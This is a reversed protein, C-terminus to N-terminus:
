KVVEMMLTLSAEYNKSGTITAHLKMACENGSFDLDITTNEPIFKNGMGKDKLWM